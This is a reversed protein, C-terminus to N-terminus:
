ISDGVESLIEEVQGGLFILAVIPLVFFLGVVILAILLCGILATNNSTGIRRVVASEGWRDHLGQNTDSMATTLLLVISWGILAYSAVSAIVPILAPPVASLRLRGLAHGGTRDPSDGGGPSSVIRLGLLRMGPTAGAGSTWFGVFYLFDLGLLIVYFLATLVIADDFLSTAWWPPSSASCSPLRWFAVLVNDLFWAVLRAGVGATQYGEVGSPPVGADPAEWGVIAPAGTGGAAGAAGM